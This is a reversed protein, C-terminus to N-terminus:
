KVFTEKVSKVPVGKLVMEAAVLGWNYANTVKDPNSNDESEILLDSIKRSFKHEDILRLKM